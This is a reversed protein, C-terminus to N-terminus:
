RRRSRAGTRRAARAPARPTRAGRGRRGAAPRPPRGPPSPRPRADAAGTTGRAARPPAATVGVVLIDHHRAGGGEGGDETQHSRSRDGTLFRRRARVPQFRRRVRDGVAIVPGLGSGRQADGGAVDHVHVCEQGVRRRSELARPNRLLLDLRRELGDFRGQRAAVFPAAGAPVDQGTRDVNVAGLRAVGELDLDEGDREGDVVTVVAAAPEHGRIAIAAQRRLDNGEVAVPHGGLEQGADDDRQVREEATHADRGRRLQAPDAARRRALM